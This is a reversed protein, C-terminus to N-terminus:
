DRDIHGIHRQREAILSDFEEWLAKAKKEDGVQRIFTENWKKEEPDNAWGMSAIGGIMPLAVISDWEGTSVHIDIVGKNGLEADVKEFMEIIEHAREGKGPKWNIMEIRYWDVKSLEPSGTQAMASISTLPFAMAAMAAAILLKKM